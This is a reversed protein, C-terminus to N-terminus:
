GPSTLLVLIARAREFLEDFGLISIGHLNDRLRDFSRRKAPTDLERAVNGAIVICRPVNSELQDDVDERLQLVNRTLASQYHLVQSQAGSIEDSLPYVDQRYEKGLLATRPHKIEIILAAGTIRTRALVDAISGHRNDLRKGGVYARNQLIVIPYHFVHEFLFPREDLVEHWFAEDGRDYNEDWLKVADELAAIGVAANLRGLNGSGPLSERLIRHRTRLSNFTSTFLDPRSVGFLRSKLDCAVEVHEHLVGELEDLELALKMVEEDPLPIEVESLASKTL